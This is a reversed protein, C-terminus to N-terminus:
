LLASLPPWLSLGLIVILDLMMVFLLFFERASLEKRRGARLVLYSSRAQASLRELLETQGEREYRALTFWFTRVEALPASQALKELAHDVALGAQLSSNFRLLDQPVISIRNSGSQDSWGERSIQMCSVVSFGAKLLHVQWNMLLPYDLRYANIKQAQQQSFFYDHLVAILVPTVLIMWLPAIGSYAWLMIFLEGLAIWYFKTQFYNTLAPENEFFNRLLPRTLKKLMPHRYLKELQLAILWLLSLAWQPFHNHFTYKSGGKRPPRDKKQGFSLNLVLAWVAILFLGGFVLQSIPNSLLNLRDPLSLMKFLGPAAAFPMVALVAAEAAKQSQEARIELELADLEALMQYSDRVFRDMRGGLKQLRPLVAFIPRIVPWPHQQYLSNLETLQNPQLEIKRALQTLHLYFDSDMEFDQALHQPSSVIARELTEGTSLRTAWFALLARYAAETRALLQIQRRKNLAVTLLATAPLWVILRTPISLPFLLAAVAAFFAAFLVHLNPKFFHQVDTATTKM